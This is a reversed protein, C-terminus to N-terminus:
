QAEPNLIHENKGLALKQTLFPSAVSIFTQGFVRFKRAILIQSKKIIGLIRACALGQKSNPIIFLCHEKRTPKEKCFLTEMRYVRDVPM